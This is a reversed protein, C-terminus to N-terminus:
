HPKTRPFAALELVGHGLSKARLQVEISEGGWRTTFIDQKHLLADRWEDETVRQIHEPDSEFARDRWFRTQLNRKM